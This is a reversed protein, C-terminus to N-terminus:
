DKRKEGAKLYQLYSILHRRSQPKLRQIDYVVEHVTINALYLDNPNASGYYGEDMGLLYDASVQYLKALEPVVWVPIARRGNEYNSYTQQAINLYKAVAKQKLDHDERLDRILERLEKM